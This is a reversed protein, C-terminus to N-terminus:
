IEDDLSSWSEFLHKFRNINRDKLISQRLDCNLYTTAVDFPPFKGLLYSSLFRGAYKSWHKLISKPLMEYKKLDLFFGMMLDSWRATLLRVKENEAKGRYVGNQIVNEFSSLFHTVAKEWARRDTLGDRLKTKRRKITQIDGELQKLKRRYIYGAISGFDSIHEEFNKGHDPFHEKTMKLNEKFSEVKRSLTFYRQSIEWRLKQIEQAAAFFDISSMPFPTSMHIVIIPFHAHVCKGSPRHCRGPDFKDLSKFPQLPMDTVIHVCEKKFKVLSFRQRVKYNLSYDLTQYLWAEQTKAWKTISTQHLRCALLVVAKFPCQIKPMAKIFMHEIVLNWNYFIKM